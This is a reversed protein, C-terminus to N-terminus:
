KVLFPLYREWEKGLLKAPRWDSPPLEVSFPVNSLLINFYTKTRFSIKKHYFCQKYKFASAPTLAPASGSIDFRLNRFPGKLSAKLCLLGSLINRKNQTTRDGSERIARKSPFILDLKKDLKKQLVIGHNVFKYLPKSHCLSTSRIRKMTNGKQICM